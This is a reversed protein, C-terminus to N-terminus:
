TLVAGPREEKKPAGGRGRGADPEPPLLQALHSAVAYIASEAAKTRLIALGEKREADFDVAGWPEGDKEVIIPAALIAKIEDSVRGEVGPQGEVHSRVEHFTARRRRYAQVVVPTEEYPAHLDFALGASERTPNQAWAETCVLKGDRRVFLFARLGADEPFGPLSAARCAAALATRVSSEPAARREPPTARLVFVFLLVIAAFLLFGVVLFAAFAAAPRASVVFGFAALLVFVIFALVSLPTRAHRMVAVATEGFEKFRM